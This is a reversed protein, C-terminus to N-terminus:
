ILVILLSQLVTVMDMWLIIKLVRHIIADATVLVIEVTKMLSVNDMVVYLLPLLAYVVIVLVPIVPKMVLVLLMEV